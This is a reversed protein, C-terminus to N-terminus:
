KTEDLIIRGEFGGREKKKAARTKELNEWTIKKYKAVAYMVELIDALEEEREDFCFEGVEERLKIKLKEWYEKDDAVHTVPTQGKSRIIDPVNDRILKSHKM